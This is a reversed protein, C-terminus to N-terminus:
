GSRLAGMLFRIEEDISEPDEVTHEVEERLIRAFRQRMRHIAVKVSGESMNLEAALERYSVNTEGTLVGKLKEFQEEKAVRAMEGRVRDLVQDLVALAWRQNFVTEPTTLDAPDIRVEQEAGVFDLSAIWQGGGRKTAQSRDWENAMYNKFSALLFTRFKGCDRDAQHFSKKELLRTFFGQTLDEAADVSNGYRRAFAYVAPWYLGCLSELAKESNADLGRVAMVLSWRTTPFFGGSTM